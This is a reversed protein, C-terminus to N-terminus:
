GDSAQLLWGLAVPLQQQWWAQDHGGIWEEHRCGLGAKALREAWQRTSRRFGPELTGAALYHRIGASRAAGSIRQPVVGVSLGAVAGILDPRRQAAAIAWAAGNSFGAAMWPGTVPGFREDAWPIVEDTVFRLHADFRRRNRRPLYEQARLDSRSSAPGSANHLGVLPVPPVAGAVIAAELAPAFVRVAEGDAPVCGPAPRGPDRPGPPQYVTVQPATPLTKSGLTHEEVAGNLPRAEAVAPARPGRWVRV